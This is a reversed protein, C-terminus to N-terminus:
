PPGSVTSPPSPSHSVQIISPIHGPTVEGQSVKSSTAMLTSIASDMGELSLPDEARTSPPAGLAVSPLKRRPMSHYSAPSYTASSTWQLQELAGQLHLNLVMTIYWPPKISPLPHYRHLIPMGGLIVEIMPLDWPPGDTTAANWLPLEQFSTQLAKPERNLGEPFVLSDSYQLLKWVQLQHLQHCANTSHVGDMMTGIHGKNSLPMHLMTDIMHVFTYPWGPGNDALLVLKWAAEMLTSLCGQHPYMWMAALGFVQDGRADTSPVIMLFVM